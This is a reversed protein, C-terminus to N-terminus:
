EPLGEKGEGLLSEGGRRSSHKSSGCSGGGEGPLWWSLRPATSDLLDLERAATPGCGLEEGERLRRNGVGVEKSVGGGGQWGGGGGGPM